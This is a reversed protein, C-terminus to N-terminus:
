RRANPATPRIASCFARRLGRRVAAVAEASIIPTARTVIIDTSPADAFALRSLVRASSMTASKTTEFATPWAKEAETAFSTSSTGPTAWTARTRPARTCSSPSRSKAVPTSGSRIAATARGSTVM